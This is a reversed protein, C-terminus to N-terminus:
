RDVVQIDDSGGIDDDRREQTINIMEPIANSDDPGIYLSGEPSISETGSILSLDNAAFQLSGVTEVL